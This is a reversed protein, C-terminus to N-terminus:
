ESLDPLNMTYLTLLLPELGEEIYGIHMPVSNIIIADVLEKQEKAILQM